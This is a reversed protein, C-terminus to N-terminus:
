NTERLKKKFWKWALKVKVVESFSGKDLHGIVKVKSVGITM